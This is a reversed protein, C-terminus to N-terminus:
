NLAEKLRLKDRPDMEDVARLIGKLAANRDERSRNVIEDIIKNERLRSIEDDIESASDSMWNLIKRDDAWKVDDASGDAPSTNVQTPSASAGSQGSAYQRWASVPRGASAQRNLSRLYWVKLLSSIKPAQLGTETSIHDRLSYEALKRRLRYYFFARARRWEVVGHICGKAKMRGPTDHLDAFHTAVQVYTQSVQSERDKIKLKIQEKEEELLMVDDLQAQCQKLVPDLQHIKEVIQKKRYKISVAGPAELIGGRAKPDSYMEMMNPNITSDLVAWAGGRLTAHPPLYVFVPQKYKVLADVIYAGYKLVEDYMDRQGGSFGRWNAFIMLPLGERNFDNIAQSTKYASDPFWVGGPQKVHQERSQPSAPDAPITYEVSRSEPVIVGIPIGGLCARGTIVTQAWGGLTETWSNRDFFGALFQEEDQLSDTIAVTGTLILRPDMAAKTPFVEVNRDPSDLNDQQMIPLAGGVVSPIYSLWRLIAEVGELDDEVTLHSVGNSYMIGPGGLQLNSSYVPTGLLKNIAQYGTLLIPAETAKQITRQGLRVLYAGIGVCRGTVYTLTFTEDYARSTDGAITGSGRLNEVGLDPSSGIIDTIIFREEDEGDENKVTIAKAAVSGQSALRNYDDSDLYIYNFGKTPDSDDVWSVKYAQKVEEAMGIRAGSNAALYIRPLGNKRAYESAASFLKDERTGFSGVKHTIDNAIVVIKRARSSRDNFEPTNLELIWAVMGIDNQGYPRVVEKIGPQGSERDVNECDLVLEVAKVLDTKEPPKAGCKKWQSSLAQRFLEIFDYCYCTATTKQALQRKEQLVGFLPHPSGAEQGDLSGRVDVNTRSPLTTLLMNGTAADKSEVYMEVMPVFGTPDAVLLRVPIKPSFEDIKASLRFEVNSVRLRRIRDSYRKYVSGIIEEFYEPRILITQVCNLFIHNGCINGSDDAGAMAVELADLCDVFRAEPGPYADLQVRKSGSYYFTPIGRMNRVISRVFFRKRMKKRQAGGSSAEYVHVARNPSVAPRISYNVLRSLELKHAQTAEINRILSDEGFDRDSRFTYIGPENQSPGLLATSTSALKPAYQSIITIRRIQKQKVSQIHGKIIEEFRSILLNESQLVELETRFDGGLEKDLLVIHLTHPPGQSGKGGGSPSSSDSLLSLVTTFHNKMDEVTQFVCMIGQRAPPSGAGASKAMSALNLSGFSDSKHMKSLGSPSVVDMEMNFEFQIYQFAQDNPAVVSSINYARYARRIYAEMATAAFHGDKANPEWFQVITQFIPQSSEVVSSLSDGRKNTEELPTVTSPTLSSKELVHQVALRREKLSPLYYRILMKRATLTVPAYTGGGNKSLSSLGTLLNLLKSAKRAKNRAEKSLGDFQSRPDKATDLLKIILNSKQAVGRHSIAAEYVKTRDSAFHQRLKMLIEAFPLKSAFHSEVDLYEQVLSTLILERHGAIGHKFNEIIEYMPELQMKVADAERGPLSVVFKEIMDGIEQVPLEANNKGGEDSYDSAMALLSSELEGPMRGTLVSLCDMLEYYPLQINSLSDDLDKSAKALLAEPVVRGAMVNKVTKLADHFTHHPQKARTDHEPYPSGLFPLRRDFLSAKRVKDPDDLLVKAIIDGPELVAGEPKTFTITGTEPVLLPMFMKMVEVECFASNATVHAGDPVMYRVLKGAMAACIQSPDYEKTFLYTQGSVVM